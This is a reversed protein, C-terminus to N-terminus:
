SLTIGPARRAEFGVPQDRIWLQAQWAGERIRSTVATVSFQPNPPSSGGYGSAEVHVEIDGTGLKAFVEKRDTIEPPYNFGIWGETSLAGVFEGPFRRFVDRLEYLLKLFTSKGANNVGIFSTFGPRLAVRAPRSAPFCRYNKVTLRIERNPLLGEPM